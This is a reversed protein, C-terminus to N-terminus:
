CQNQETSNEDLSKLLINVSTNWGVSGEGFGVGLGHCVAAIHSAFTLVVNCQKQLLARNCRSLDLM